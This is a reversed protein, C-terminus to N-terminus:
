LCWQPREEGVQGPARAFDWFRDQTLRRHRRTHQSRM